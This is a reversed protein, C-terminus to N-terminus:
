GLGLYGSIEIENVDKNSKLQICNQCSSRGECFIEGDSKMIKSFACSGYGECDLKSSSDNLIQDFCSFDKKCDQSTVMVSVGVLVVM